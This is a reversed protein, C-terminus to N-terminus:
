VRYAQTQSHKAARLYTTRPETPPVYNHGGPRSNTTHSEWYYTHDDPDTRGHGENHSQPGLRSHIGSGRHATSQRRTEGHPGLRSQIPGRRRSRYSSDDEDLTRVDCYSSGRDEHRSRSAPHTPVRNDYQLIRGAPTHPAPTPGGPIQAEACVKNYAAALMTQQQLYWTHLDMGPPIVTAYQSFDPASAPPTGGPASTGIHGANQAPPATGAPGPNAPNLSEGTANNPHDSM